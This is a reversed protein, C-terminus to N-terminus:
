LSAALYRAALSKCFDWTLASLASKASVCNFELSFNANKSCCSLSIHLEYLARMKFSRSTAAAASSCSRSFADSSCIRMSVANAASFLDVGRASRMAATASSRACASTSFLAMAAVYSPASRPAAPSRRARLARCSDSSLFAPFPLENTDASIECNFLWSAAASTDLLWLSFSSIRLACISKSCRTTVNFFVCM